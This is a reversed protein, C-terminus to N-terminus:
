LHYQGFVYEAWVFLYVSLEGIALLGLCGSHLVVMEELLTLQRVLGLLSLPGSGGVEAEVRNVHGTDELRYLM